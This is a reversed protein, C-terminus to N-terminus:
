EEALLVEIRSELEKTHKVFYDKTAPGNFGGELHVVQNNKNLILITPYAMFNQLRPFIRQISVANVGGGLVMPYPINLTEQVKKLREKQVQPKDGHEFYVTIIELGRDKYKPYLDSLFYKTEDYCNPCWTGAIQLIRVKQEDKNNIEHGTLDQWHFIFPFDPDEFSLEKEFNPLVAQEDFYAKFNTKKGRTNTRVGKLIHNEELEATMLHASGGVFGFVRLQNQYFYGRLFRFDTSATIVNGWLEGNPQIEFQALGNANNEFLVAWKGEIKQDTTKPFELAGAYATFYSLRLNESEDYFIGQIHSPSEIKGLLSRSYVLFDILVSDKTVTLKMEKLRESGNLIEINKGDESIEFEFPIGEKEPIELETLLYGHWKGTQITQPNKCSFLTFIPIILALFWSFVYQIKIM